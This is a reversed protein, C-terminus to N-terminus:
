FCFLLFLQLVYGCRRVVFGTVMGGNRMAKHTFLDLVCQFFARKKLTAKSVNPSLTITVFIVFSQILYFDLLQHMHFIQYSTFEYNHIITDLLVSPPSLHFILIAPLLTWLMSIIERSTVTVKASRRLNRVALLVFPHIFRTSGGIFAGASIEWVIWDKPM